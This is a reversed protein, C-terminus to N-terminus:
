TCLSHTPRARLEYGTLRPLRHPEERRSALPLISPRSKTHPGRSILLPVGTSLLIDYSQHPPSTTRINKRIPDNTSDILTTHASATLVRHPKIGNIPGKARAMRSGRPSLREEWGKRERVLDGLDTVISDVSGADYRGFAKGCNGFGM